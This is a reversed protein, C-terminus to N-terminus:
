YELKNKIYEEIALKDKDTINLEYEVHVDKRLEQEPFVIKELFLRAYIAEDINDFQKLYIRRGNYQIGVSYKGNRKDFYVGRFGTSNKRQRTNVLQISRDSIRLNNKRNDLGNGNIHDIEVSSDVDLIFRHLYISQGSVVYFSKLKEGKERINWKLNSVKEFDEKDILFPGIIEGKRNQCFGEYYNEKEIFINRDRCGLKTNDVIKGHSELQFYHKQCLNKEYKKYFYVRKYKSSVGCIDCFKEKKTIM